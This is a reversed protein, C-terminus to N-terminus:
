RRTEEDVDTSVHMCEAYGLGINSSSVTFYTTGM